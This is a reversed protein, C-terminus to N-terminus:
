PVLEAAMSTIRVYSCSSAISGHLSRLSFHIYPDIQAGLNEETVYDEPNSLEVSFGEASTATSAATTTEWASNKRVYLTAGYSIASNLESCSGTYMVRGGHMELTLKLKSYNAAETTSLKYLFDVRAHTGPATFLGTDVAWSYRGTLTSVPSIATMRSPTNNFSAIPPLFADFYGGDLPDSNTRIFIGLAESASTLSVAKSGGPLPCQNVLNPRQEDTVYYNALAVTENGLLNGTRSGVLYLEPRTQAFLQKLTTGGCGATGAGTVGILQITRNFGSKVRIAIGEATLTSASVLASTTGLGLCAPSIANDFDQSGYTSVVGDGTVNVFYCAMDM